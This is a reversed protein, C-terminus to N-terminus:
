EIYCCSCRSVESVYVSLPRYRYSKSCGKCVHMHIDGSLWPRCSKEGFLNSHLSNLMTATAINTSVCCYCCYCQMPVYFTPRVSVWVLCCWCCYCRWEVSLVGDDHKQPFNYQLHLFSLANGDKRLMEVTFMQPQYISFVIRHIHTHTCNETNTAPVFLIYAMFHGCVRWDKLPRSRTAISRFM